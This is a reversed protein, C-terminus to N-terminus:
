VCATRVCPAPEFPQGHRIGNVVICSGRAEILGQDRLRKIARGASERTCGAMQALEIRTMSIQMGSPHTLADPLRTIEILSKYCRKDVDDFLMQILKETTESLRKNIHSSIEGYLNPLKKAAQKLDEHALCVLEVNTRAQISATAYLMQASDFLGQEGFIDGPKLNNICLASDNEPNHLVIRLSGQVVLCLTKPSDLFPFVQANKKLKRSKGSTKFLRELASCATSPQAQSM